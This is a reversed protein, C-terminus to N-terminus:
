ENPSMETLAQRALRAERTNTLELQRRFHDEAEARRGLARYAMGLHFHVEAPQGAQVLAWGLTDLYDADGPRM